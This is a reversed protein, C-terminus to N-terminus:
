DMIRFRFFTEGIIIEEGGFLRRETILEGNVLSGNSSKNDKIFFADNERFLICHKRSVKSDNKIQIENDRGRGISIQDNTFPYIQEEATGEQYLLLARRDGAGNVDATEGDAPESAMEVSSSPLPEEGSLFDVENEGPVGSDEHPDLEDDASVEVAAEDALAEEAAVEVEAGFEVESAIEVEAEAVEVEGEGFGTPWNVEDGGSEGFADGELAVAADEPVVSDEEVVAEPNVGTAHGAETALEVWQHLAASFTDLGEQAEAIKGDAQQLDAKLEKSEKEFDKESLEGIALRLEMEELAEDSGGKAAAVDSVVGGLDAIYIQMESVLPLVTEALEMSNVEHTLCVKEIVEPRFKSAQSKAKAIFGRVKAYQELQDNFQDLLAQKEM